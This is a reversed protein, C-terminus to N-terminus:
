GQSDMVLLFDSILGEVYIPIHVDRHNFAVAVIQILVEQDTLAPVPCEEIVVDHYLPSQEQAAKQLVLTRTTAPLFMTV